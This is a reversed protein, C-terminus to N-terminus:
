PSHREEFNCNECVAFVFSIFALEAKKWLNGKRRPIREELRKIVARFGELSKSLFM